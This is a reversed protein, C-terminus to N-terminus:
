NSKENEIKKLIQEIRELEKEVNKGQRSDKKVKRLDERLSKLTFATNRKMAAEYTYYKQLDAHYEAGSKSGACSTALWLILILKKM